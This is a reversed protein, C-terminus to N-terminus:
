DLVLDKQQALVLAAASNDLAHKLLERPGVYVRWNDLFYDGGGIVESWLLVTVVDDRM